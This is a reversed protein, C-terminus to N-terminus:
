LTATIHTQRSLAARWVSHPALKQLSGLFAADGDMAILLMEGAIDTIHAELDAWYLTCEGKIARRNGVTLLRTLRGWARRTAPYAIIDHTEDAFVLRSGVALRFSPPLPGEEHGRKVAAWARVVGAVTNRDAIGIGAMGLAGARLVMDAAHSAGRLFSFNTAAALEAFPPAQEM